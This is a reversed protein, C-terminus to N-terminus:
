IGRGKSMTELLSSALQLFPPYSLSQGKGNTLITLRSFEDGSPTATLVAPQPPFDREKRRM